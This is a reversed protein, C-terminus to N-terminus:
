PSFELIWKVVLKLSAGLRNKILVHFSVVEPSRGRSTPRNMTIKGVNTSLYNLWMRKRMSMQASIASIHTVVNGIIFGKSTNL